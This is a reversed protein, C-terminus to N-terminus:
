DNEHIENMYDVWRDSAMSWGEMLANDFGKVGKFINEYANPVIELAGKVIWKEYDFDQVTNTYMDVALEVGTGALSVAGGMTILAAGVPAGVGTASLAIGATLMSDGMNQFVNALNSPAIFGEYPNDTSQLHNGIQYMTMSQALTSGDSLTGHGGTSFDNNMFAAIEAGTPNNHLITNEWNLFDMLRTIEVPNSTTFSDSTETWSSGSGFSVSSGSSTGFSAFLNSGRMFSEEGYGTLGYGSDGGGPTTDNPDVEPIFNGGLIFKSEEKSITIEIDEFDLKKLRM